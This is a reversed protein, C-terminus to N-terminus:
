ARLAERQTSVLERFAEWVAPFEPRGGRTPYFRALEPAAGALVREHVAGLM